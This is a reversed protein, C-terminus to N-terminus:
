PTAPEGANLRDLGAQLTRRHHGTQGAAMRLWDLADIQGLFPHPFTRQPDPDAQVEELLARSAAHRALLTDLPQDPGPETGAPAVRRGDRLQGPAVAVDRLPKGSLLLRVVRGTGENVLITHEIEQAPTWDRGPLRTHWHAAAAHMAQEFAGLERRLRSSVAEPTPLAARLAALEEQTSPSAPGSERPQSM